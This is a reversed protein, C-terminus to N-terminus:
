NLNDEDGQEYVNLAVAVYLFDAGKHFEVLLPLYEGLRSFTISVEHHMETTAKGKVANGAASKTLKRAAPQKGARRRPVARAFLAFLIKKLIITLILQMMRRM